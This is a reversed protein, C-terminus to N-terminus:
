RAARGVARHAGTIGAALVGLFIFLGAAGVATGLALIHRDQLRRAFTVNLLLLPAVIIGGLAIFNGAGTPSFHVGASEDTGTPSARM